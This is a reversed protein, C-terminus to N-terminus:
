TVETARGLMYVRVTMVNAWGAATLISAAGVYSDPTGDADADLGYDVQMNEIGEAITTKTFTETGRAPTMDVRKLTPIPTGGDAGTCSGAVEVSCDSVYYIHVLMKRLTAATAKDKKLLTFTSQNTSQTASAQAMVYKM